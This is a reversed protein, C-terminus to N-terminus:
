RGSSWSRWFVEEDALVDGAHDYGLIRFDEFQPAFPADEVWPFDLATLLYRRDNGGRFLASAPLDMSHPVREITGGEGETLETFTLTFRDIYGNDVRGFLYATRKGGQAHSIVGAHVPAGDWTEVRCWDRDYWGMLPHYGATCLMMADDGDVLYHLAFRTVPISGDYFREVVRPHQIDKLDAMVRVAQIPLFRYLGTVSALVVVAALWGCRRLATRKRTSLKRKRKM